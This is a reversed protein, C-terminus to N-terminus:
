KNVLLRRAMGEYWSERQVDEQALRMRRQREKEELAAAAAAFRAEEDPDVRAMAEARAKEAEAVTKFRKESVKVDAVEQFVTAGTTYAEQLDTFQTESGFAATFNKAHDGGLEVGHTSILADPALRKTIQYGSTQAAARERFIAEFNQPTVKKGQLRPDMAVEDSGGQSKLWDGYGSDRAPDPLRNEEFLKNFMSMDLKKASLAVPPKDDLKPAGSERYAAAAEATVPGKMRAADAASMRPNVRNLIKEVYAAARKVADFAEPSGGKDPHARLSAARFASKLREQTLTESEPIGLLELCEQFYDLAKAAPSVILQHNDQPFTQARRPPQQPPQQVPTTYMSWRNPTSASVGGWQAGDHQITDRGTTGGTAYPFPTVHGRRYLSLWSIVQGYYGARRAEMVLDPSLLVTDIMHARVDDSQLACIENWIRSASGGMSAPECFLGPPRVLATDLCIFDVYAGNQMRELQLQQRRCEATGAPRSEPSLRESDSM